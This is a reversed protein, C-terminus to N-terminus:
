LAETDASTTPNYTPPFLHSLDRGRPSLTSEGDGLPSKGMGNNTNASREQVLAAAKADNESVETAKSAENWSLTPPHAENADVQERSLM